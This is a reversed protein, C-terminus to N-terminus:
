EMNSSYKKQNKYPSETEIADNIERNKIGKLRKKETRKIKFNVLFYVSIFFITILLHYTNELSVFNM